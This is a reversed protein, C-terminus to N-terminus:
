PERLSERAGRILPQLLTALLSRSGVHTEATVTMGPM